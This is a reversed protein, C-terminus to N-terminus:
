GNIINKVQKKLVLHHHRAIIIIKMKKKMVVIEQITKKIMMAIMIIMQIENFFKKHTESRKTLISLVKTLLNDDINSNNFEIKYLFEIYEIAM